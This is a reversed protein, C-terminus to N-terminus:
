RRDGGTSGRHNSLPSARVQVGTTSSSSVFGSEERGAKRRKKREGRVEGAEMDGTTRSKKMKAKADVAASAHSPSHMTLTVLNM